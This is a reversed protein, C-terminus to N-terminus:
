TTETTNLFKGEDTTLFAKIISVISTIAALSAINAITKIDLSFIDGNGQIYVGVALLATLLGSVIAGKISGWTLTLIGNKM